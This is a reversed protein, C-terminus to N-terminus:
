QIMKKTLLYHATKFFELSLRNNEKCKRKESFRLGSFVSGNMLIPDYWSVLTQPIIQFFSKAGDYEFITKSIKELVGDLRVKQEADLHHKFLTHFSIDFYKDTFYQDLSFIDNQCYIIEFQKGSNNKIEEVEGQDLNKKEVSEVVNALSALNEGAIRHATASQDVAIFILQHEFTTRGLREIIQRVSEMGGSGLYAIVMPRDQKVIYEVLNKVLPEILGPFKKKEMAILKRHM